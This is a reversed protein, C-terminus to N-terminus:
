PSDPFPNFCANRSVARIRNSAIRGDCPRRRGVRALDRPQHGAGHGPPTVFPRTHTGGVRVPIDDRMDTLAPAYAGLMSIVEDTSEGRLPELQQSARGCSGNREM